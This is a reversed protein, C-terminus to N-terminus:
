PHECTTGGKRHPCRDRLSCFACGRVRAPRPSDALGMLATVSKAPIMLCSDTCSVGVRRPADLADLLRPQLSLPLDGYGPSFRDTLYQGPHRAAIDREAAGCAAEVYANGCADLTVAYAMDRAQATRLLSDFAAGLTCCLLIVHHCGGLMRKALAGPLSLHLAPLIIGEPSEALELERYTYRPTVRNELERAVREAEARAAGDAGRAGLYRLAEDVDIIM